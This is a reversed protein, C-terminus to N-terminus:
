KADVGVPEPTATPAAVVASESPSPTKARYAGCCAYGGVFGLFDRYWNRFGFAQMEEIAQTRTWGCVEMRYLASMVGTRDRGYQCHVYAPRNAPDTVVDLFRKVAAAGPPDCVVDARIPIEVCRLGYAEAAAKEEGGQRLDIVTKFGHEKLAKLGADDPASGRWLGDDIKAVNEMPLDAVRTAFLCGDTSCTAARSPDYSACGALLAVLSLCIWSVLRV